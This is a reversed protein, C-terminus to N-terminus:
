PGSRPFVRRTPTGPSAREVDALLDPVPVVARVHDCNLDLGAEPFGALEELVLVRPRWRREGDTTRKRRASAVSEAENRVPSLRYAPLRVLRAGPSQWVLLLMCRRQRCRYEALLVRRRVKSDAADFAALLLDTREARRALLDALDDTVGREKDTVVAAM